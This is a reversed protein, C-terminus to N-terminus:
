PRIISAAAAMLGQALGPLVGFLLTGAATSAMSLAAGGEWRRRTPETAGEAPEQFCMVWVVRLYYYISFISAVALCIALWLQGAQLAAYFIFWKGMFGMTPPIGGLSLMFILMVYAPLPDRKALGRVDDLTQVDHGRRTLWVLVGFAGLTMLTYALLYFIAAGMAANHTLRSGAVGAASVAVLLYGAHAISSYALMRKVNQQAIAWLNGGFMSLVAMVQIATLWFESLTVFANLVRLIAAFAAVKAACAMFAAASTPAGEYVDPAWAHFPVLAAKFGLGVLLLALGAVLMGSPHEVHLATALHTLNTTGPTAQSSSGGYILAIGYLLFGSAFAGLLFYKLAAEDSRPNATDFGALVYFAVSLIEVAIFLTILDNASAMIMGGCTAFLVLAHYEGHNIGRNQLYTMGLLVAVAAALLLVLGCATAFSDVNLSGNFALTPQWGIDDMHGLSIAAAVAVGLVSLVGSIWGQRRWFGICADGLLVVMGTVAVVIVPLLAHMSGANSLIM